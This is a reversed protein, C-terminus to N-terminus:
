LNPFFKNVFLTKGKNETKVATLAILLVAIHAITCHNTAPSLEIASLNQM